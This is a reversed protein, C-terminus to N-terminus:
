QKTKRNGRRTPRVNHRDVERLRIAEHLIAQMGEDDTFAGITRRWDKEKGSRAVNIEGQLQDVRSELIELRKKLSLSM